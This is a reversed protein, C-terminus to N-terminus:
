LKITHNSLKNNRHLMDRHESLSWVGNVQVNERERVLLGISIIKAGLRGYMCITNFGYVVSTSAPLNFPVSFIPPNDKSL